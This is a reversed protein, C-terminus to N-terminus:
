DYFKIRLGDLSDALDFDLYLTRCIDSTIGGELMMIPDLGCEEGTLFPREPDTVTGGSEKLGRVSDFSSAKTSGMRLGLGVRKVKKGM